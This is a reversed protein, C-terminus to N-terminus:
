LPALWPSRVGLLAKKEDFDWVKPSSCVFKASVNKPMQPIKPYVILVWTPVTLEKEMNEM